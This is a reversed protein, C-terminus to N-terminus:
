CRGPSDAAETVPQGLRLVEDTDFTRRLGGDLPCPFVLDSAFRRDVAAATRPRPPVVHVHDVIPEFLVPAAALYYRSLGPGASLEAAYLLGHPTIMLRESVIEVTRHTDTGAWEVAVHRAHDLRRQGDDTLLRELDARSMWPCSGIAPGFHRRLVEDLFGPSGESM